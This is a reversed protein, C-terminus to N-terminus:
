GITARLVQLVLGLAFALVIIRLRFDNRADLLYGIAVAPLRIVCTAGALAFLVLGIPALLPIRFWGFSRMGRWIREWWGFVADFIRTLFPPDSQLMRAVLLDEAETGEGGRDELRDAPLTMNLLSQRADPGVTSPYFGPLSRDGERSDRGYNKKLESFAALRRDAARRDREISRALLYWGAAALAAVDMGSAALELWGARDPM